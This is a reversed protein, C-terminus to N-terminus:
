AASRAAPLEALRARAEALKLSHIRIMQKDHHIAARVQALQAEHREAEHDEPEELATRYSGVSRRLSHRHAARRAELSAMDARLVAVLTDTPATMPPNM